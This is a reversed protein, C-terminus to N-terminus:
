EWVSVCVCVCLLSLEEQTDTEGTHEPAARTNSRCIWWWGRQDWQPFYVFWLFICLMSLWCLSLFQRWSRSDVSILNEGSVCVVSVSVGQAILYSKKSIHGARKSMLFLFVTFLIRQLVVSVTHDNAWLFCSIVWLRCFSRRSSLCVRNVALFLLFSPLFHTLGKMERRTWLNVGPFSGPFTKPSIRTGPCRRRWM